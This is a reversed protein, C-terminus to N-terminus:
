SGPCRYTCRLTLQLPLHHRDGRGLCGRRNPGPGRWKLATVEVLPTWCRCEGFLSPLSRRFLAYLPDSLDLSRGGLWGNPVLGAMYPPEGPVGDFVSSLQSISGYSFITALFATTYFCGAELPLFRRM